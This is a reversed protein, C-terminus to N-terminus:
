LRDSTNWDRIIAYSNNLYYSNASDKLVLVDSGSGDYRAPQQTTTLLMEM